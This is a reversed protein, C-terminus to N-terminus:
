GQGEVQSNVGGVVPREPVSVDIYRRPRFRTGRAAAAPAGSRAEAAPRRRRRATARHGSRLVLALETEKARVAQVSRRSRAEPSRHSRPRRTGGGEPTLVEGLKVGRGERGLGTAALEGAPRRGQAARARPGVRGMGGQGSAAGAGAAGPDRDAQLTHPFDRDMRVALVGAVDALRRRSRARRRGRRSQTGGGARARRQVQAQLAPSGGRVELERLSFMSTERAAAYAGVALALLAMGVALSRAHRCISRWRRSRAGRPCHRPARPREGPRPWPARNAAGPREGVAAAARAPRPVAGRARARVRARAHVRRRAEAM